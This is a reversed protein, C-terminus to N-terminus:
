LSTFGDTNPQTVNGKKNPTMYPSIPCPMHRNKTDDINTRKPSWILFDDILSKASTQYMRHIILKKAMKQPTHQLSKTEMGKSAPDHQVLAPGIAILFFGSQTQAIPKSGTQTSEVFSSVKELERLIFVDTMKPTTCIDSPMNMFAKLASQKLLYM